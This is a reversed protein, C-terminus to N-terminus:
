ILTSKNKSVSLDNNKSVSSFRNINNVITYELINLIFPNKSTSITNRSIVNKSNENIDCEKNDEILLAKVAKLFISPKKKTKNIISNSDKYKQIFNNNTKIIKMKKRSKNLYNDKEDENDSLNQYNIKNTKCLIMPTPIEPDEKPHPHPKFNKQELMIYNSDDEKDIVFFDELKITNISNEKKIKEKPKQEKQEKHLIKNFIKKM